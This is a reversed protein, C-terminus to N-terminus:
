ATLIEVFLSVSHDGLTKLWFPARKKNEFVADYKASLELSVDAYIKSFSNRSLM